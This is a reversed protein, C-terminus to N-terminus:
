TNNSNEADIEPVVEKINDINRMTVFLLLPLLELLKELQCIIQELAHNVM